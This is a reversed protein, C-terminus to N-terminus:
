TPRLMCRYTSMPSADDDRQPDVDLKYSITTKIRHRGTDYSRKLLLFKIRQKVEMRARNTQYFVFNVITLLTVTLPCLAILLQKVLLIRFIRISIYISIYLRKTGVYQYGLHINYCLFFIRNINDYVNKTFLCSEIIVCTSIHNYIIKILQFIKFKM